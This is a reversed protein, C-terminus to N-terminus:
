LSFAASILVLLLSWIWGHVNGGPYCKDSPIRLMRNTAHDGYPAGYLYEYPHRVEEMRRSFVVYKYLIGHGYGYRFVNM